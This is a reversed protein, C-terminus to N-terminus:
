QHYCGTRRKGAVSSNWGAKSWKRSIEFGVREKPEIGRCAFHNKFLPTNAGARSCCLSSICTVRKGVEVVGWCNGSRSSRGAGRDNEHSEKEAKEVKGGSGGNGGWGGV